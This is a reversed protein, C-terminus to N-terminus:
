VDSGFEGAASEASQDAIKEGTASGKMRNEFNAIADIQECNVSTPNGMLM